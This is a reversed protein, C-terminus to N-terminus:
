SQPDNEPGVAHWIANKEGSILAFGGWGSMLNRYGWYVDLIVGLIPPYWRMTQTTPDRRGNQTPKQGNQGKPLLALLPFFYALQLRPAVVYTVLPCGGMNPTTKPTCYPYPFRM